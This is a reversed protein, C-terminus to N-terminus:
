FDGDAVQFVTLGLDRWMQVVSDRDDFVGLVNWYPEVYTEFLEKKVVYDPRYDEEDRMIVQEGDVWPLNKALWDTTKEMCVASRGSMFIIEVDGSKALRSLVEAVPLNLTDEDVRGFQYPSRGSTHLALTGDLDCIYCNPLTLDHKREPTPPKLYKNYMAVIVKRGVPNKREKDRKVCTELDVDCFDKVVFEANHQKAIERLRQEHFPALNTDSSIVTLGQSLLTSIVSDRVRMVQKEHKQQYNGAFMTARIDDKCVNRVNDDTMLTRLAWTTKGSGPLGKTMILKPTTQSM